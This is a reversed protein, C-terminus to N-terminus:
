QPVRRSPFLLSLTFRLGLGDPGGAPSRAWYRLGAALSVPQRGVGVLHSITANIPVLWQRANWDYNSESNLTYTWATATTYALFPQVFTNDVDGRRSSGAFSWIHNALVGYTWPGQQRLAVGTPGAGWRGSGLLDDTGTPILFAPGLGWIVSGPGPQVPSVFLSQTIDGLGSQRGSDGAVDRQAILPLITRSILNWDESLSFPVVPQVNIYNRHGDGPGIGRDANFQLPVSILSAVPNSLRKALDADQALSLARWALLLVFASAHAIRRGADCRGASGSQAAARTSHDVPM